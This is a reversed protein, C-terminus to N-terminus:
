EDGDESAAAERSNASGAALKGGVQQFVRLCTDLEDATVGALLEGRLNEAVAKIQDLIPTAKATLHLSKARRDSPLPRREILGELELRDLTRVLTPGQVGVVEALERQTIPGAVKSLHMLILWRAQTLGFPSLRRDIEARWLRSIQSLWLGFLETPRRGDTKFPHTPLHPSNDTTSM